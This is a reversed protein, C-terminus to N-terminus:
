SQRPNGDAPEDGFVKAAQELVGAAIRAVAQLIRAAVDVSADAVEDIVLDAHGQHFSAFRVIRPGIRYDLLVYAGDLVGEADASMGVTVDIREGFPGARNADKALEEVEALFIGTPEARSYTDPAGTPQAARREGGDALYARSAVICILRSRDDTEVVWVDEGRVPSFYSAVLAGSTGDPLEVRVTAPETEGPDHPPDTTPM